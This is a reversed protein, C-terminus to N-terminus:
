LITWNDPIYDKNNWMGDPAIVIKDPNKNLWAGWWSFTSSAIIHHKCQSMLWLDNITSDDENMPSHRVYTLPYNINLNAMLWDLDDSFCFFHPNDIRQAIFDAAKSYYNMSVLGSGDEDAQPVEHYSRGHLSISNVNQIRDAMKITDSEQPCVFELDKRLIQEIDRFYHESQWLGDIYVRKRIDLNLIASQFDRKEEVIYSLNKLKRFQQAKVQIRRRLLGFGSGFSDYPTAIDAKINFNGLLYKRGYGDNNFGSVIDLNLAVKNKLALHRAIAYIFLQNGVGGRIRAVVKRNNM